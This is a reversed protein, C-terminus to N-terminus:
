KTGGGLSRYLEVVASLQERKINAVDLESTLLNGQATIVELYNALGSRFLLEAHGIAQHLTNLRYDAIRAQDQLKSNTVLANSVDGVAILVSQRFAIVAQERAIRAEELQTKLQRGELIPQLIVGGVMGFLSNPVSFWNSIKFADLGGGATINLGPYLNAQAAGVRANAAILGLEAARVDPRRSVLSAPVGVELNEPVPVDHIDTQRAITGPLTATLIHLANEQLVISQELEPVLLAAAQKQVDAQEVALQTVDGSTKQLRTIQLISDGLALNRKAIGLQADLMLLNYYGEAVDAILTTQVARAAEYSQLYTAVAAEKQRRLKGWVDAEWSANVQVSYDELHDVGLFAQDSIGNITNKGYVGTNAGIQASVQPLFAAKARKVEQGSTAIRTLATQLDYNNTLATDILQQLVPDTFFQKWGTTAISLTDGTPVGAYQAPVPLSPREYNRGVRCAAIGLLLVAVSIHRQIKM